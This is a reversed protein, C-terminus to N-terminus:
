RKRFVHICIPSDDEAPTANWDKWIEVLELGAQNGMEQLEERENWRLAATYVDPSQQDKLFVLAQTFIHKDPYYMECSLTVEGPIIRMIHVLQGELRYGAPNMCEIVLIGGPKLHESARFFFQQQEDLSLVTQLELALNFVLDFQKGLQVETPNGLHSSIQESGPQEKLKELMDQYREIVEVSACKGVLPLAHRGTGVFTGLIDGSNSLRILQSIAAATEPRYGFKEHWRDAWAKSNAFKNLDDFNVRYDLM